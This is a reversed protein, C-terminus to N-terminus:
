LEFGVVAQVRHADRPNGGINERACFLYETGIKIQETPHYFLNISAAHGCRYADLNRNSSLTSIFRYAAKSRLEPLWNHTVGVGVGVANLTEYKSADVKTAYVTNVEGKLGGLDAMYSGIGQGYVGQLKFTSKEPVLQFTTSINVGYAPVNVGVNTSKDCYELMRFLGSVQVHWLKEQEYKVSASVAPMNKYPQLNEKDRAAKKLQPYIVLDPAEEIALVYSLFTSPQHKWRVQAYRGSLLNCVDPDCFNSTAKGIRLGKFDAYVSQLALKEELNTQVVLKM